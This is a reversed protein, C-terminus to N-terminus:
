VVHIYQPVDTMECGNSDQLLNQSVLVVIVLYWIFCTCIFLCHVCCVAVISIVVRKVIEYLTRVKVGIKLLLYGICCYVFIIIPLTLMIVACIALQCAGLIWNGLYFYVGGFFGTYKALITTIRWSRGMSECSDEGFSYVYCAKVFCRGDDGSEFCETDCFCRNNICSIYKSDQAISQLTCNSKDYCMFKTTNLSHPAVFVVVGTTFLLCYYYVFYM